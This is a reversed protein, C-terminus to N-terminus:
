CAFFELTRQGPAFRLIEITVGFEIPQGRLLPEMASIHSAHDLEQM